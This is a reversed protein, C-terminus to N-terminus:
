PKVAQFASGNWIGPGRKTDYIANTLLEAKTPPLPLPWVHSAYVDRPHAQNFAPMMGDISGNHSPDALWDRRFAGLDKDRLAGQEISGTIAAYGGESMTEVTELLLDCSRHAPCVQTVVCALLVTDGVRVEEGRRDIAM